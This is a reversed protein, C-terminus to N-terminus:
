SSWDWIAHMHTHKTHANPPRVALMNAVLTSGVRTEHFVMGGFSPLKQRQKQIEVHTEVEWWSRAIIKYKPKVEAQM